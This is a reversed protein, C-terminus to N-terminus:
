LAEGLLELNKVEKQQRETIDRRSLLIKCIQGCRQELVIFSLMDWHEQGNFMMKVPISTNPNEPSLRKTLNELNLFESVEKKADSDIVVDKLYTIFENYPGSKLVHEDESTAYLFEYTNQEVDILVFRENLRELGLTIYKLDKMNKQILKKEYLNNVLLYFVSADFLLTMLCVLCVTSFNSIGSSALTERNLDCFLIYSIVISLMWFLIILVNMTLKKIWQHNKLKTVNMRDEMRNGFLLVIM